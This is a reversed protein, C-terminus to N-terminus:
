RLVDMRESDLRLLIFVLLSFGIISSGGYSFFPLPIGVVPALGIVMGVNIMFHFFFICACCYGFIRTFQSRQREAIMVIRILLFLYLVIFVVAGTFGWEEAWSCFIFDTSQEPVQNFQDNSLTAKRYGKGAFGGSAIAAMSQAQNYGIDKKDQILGLVLDIRDRHRDKLVKHFAIITGFSVVFGLAWVVLIRLLYQRRFRPRVFRQVFLAILGCVITILGTLLIPAQMNMEAMQLQLLDTDRFFISLLAILATYLGYLLVNGSLGERYMVFIFSFFVLVTGPDPQLTILLAPAGLLLLTNIRTRTDHLKINPTSLLKAFALATAFKSLESPQLSFGGIKFWSHAGKIAPMFLVAILLILVIVYAHYAYNAIFRGQTLLILGGLVLSVVIYLVQKGYEKNMSLLSPHEESYASSFITILGLLVFLCYVLLLPKDLNRSIHVSEGNRM